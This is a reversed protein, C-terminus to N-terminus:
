ALVFVRWGARGTAERLTGAAVLRDLLALAAQPSVRLEQALTRRTLLPARLALAAADPLHSRATAPLGALQQAARDLRALERAAGESAALVVRLFAGPWDAAASLALRHLLESPASWVPLPLAAGHGAGRWVAAALLIAARALRDGRGQEPAALRMWAQAALAARLLPPLDAVAAMADRWAALLPAPPDAGLLPRLLEAVGEPAALRGWRPLDALRRWLRALLLAQEATADEPPVAGRAAEDALTNPLVSPLRRAIAAAAYSGALGAERLALDLPHIWCGQHALWGAAERLALRAALGAAVPAPGLALTTDLRILGAQAAALPALLGRWNPEPASPSVIAREVVIARRHCDM